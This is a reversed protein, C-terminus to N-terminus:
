VQLSPMEKFLALTPNMVGADARVLSYPEQQEQQQEAEALGAAEGANCVSSMKRMLLVSDMSTIHLSYLLIDSIYRRHTGARYYSVGHNRFDVCFM